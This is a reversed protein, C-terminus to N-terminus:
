YNSYIVAHCADMLLHETTHWIYEIEHSIYCPLFDSHLLYECLGQYDGKSYNFTFYSTSKSSITVSISLSFTISYHDSPLLQDPNIQLHSIKDDLNTLLLDLINRHKHTPQDILQSLGTQFVLDCFQNSTPSLSSLLDWDIDPFNFDGLIITKDSIHHLHLLFNFLSDYYDATSSPPVYTVCFTIPSPLVLKICIIELNDPSSIVQCTFKNSVAIM